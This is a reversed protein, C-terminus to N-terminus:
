QCTIERFNRLLPEGYESLFSEPHFQVGFVHRSLDELAMATGSSTHATISINKPPSSPDVILSHYRAALFPSPIGKFLGGGNHFIKSTKGHMPIGSPIVDGGYARAIIQFGLCVGFIPISGGVKKLLENCFEAQDPGGPGPSFILHSPPNKLIESISIETPRAVSIDRDWVKAALHALNWTFSDFNDIILPSANARISM